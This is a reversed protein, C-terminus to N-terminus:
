VYVTAGDGDIGVKAEAQEDEDEFNDLAHEQKNADLVVVVDRVVVEAVGVEVADDIDTGVFEQTDAFREVTVIVDATVTVIDEIRVIESGPEVTEIV